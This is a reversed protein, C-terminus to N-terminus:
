YQIHYRYHIVLFINTCTRMQQNRIVVFVVLSNGVLGVALLLIFIPVSAWEVETPWVFDVITQEYDAFDDSYQRITTASALAADITSENSDNM